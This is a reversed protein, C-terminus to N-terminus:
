GLKMLNIANLYQGHLTQLQKKDFQPKKSNMLEMNFMNSVNAGKEDDQIHVQANPSAFNVIHSKHKYPLRTVEQTREM